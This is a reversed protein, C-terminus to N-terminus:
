IKDRKIKAKKLENMLIKGEDEGIAKRLTGLNGACEDLAKM